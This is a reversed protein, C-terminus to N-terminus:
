SIAHAHLIAALDRYLSQVARSQDQCRAKFHLFLKSRTCFSTSSLFSYWIAYQFAAPSFGVQLTAAPTTYPNLLFPQFAPMPKITCSPGTTGGFNANVFINGTVTASNHSSLAVGYGFYGPGTSTFTNGTWLGNRGRYSTSNISSWTLPGIALGIKIMDAQADLTNGTVEVGTYDGSFPAYDVANVGGLLRRTSAVIQNGTVKTGPSQFLVIGGDTADTVVNNTVFSNRCAVSM